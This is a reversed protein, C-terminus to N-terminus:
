EKRKGGERVFKFTIGSSPYGFTVYFEELKFLKFSKFVGGIKELLAKQEDTAKAGVVESIKVDEAVNIRIPEAQASIPM